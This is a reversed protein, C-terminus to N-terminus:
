PSHAPPCSTSARISVNYTAGVPQKSSSFYLDWVEASEHAFLGTLPYHAYDGQARYDWTRTDLTSPLIAELQARGVIGMEPMLLTIHDGPARAGHQQMWWLPRRLYVQASSGDPKTYSLHLWRWTAPTIEERDIDQVDGPLTHEANLALVAVESATAATLPLNSISATVGLPEFVPVQAEIAQPGAATLLVTGAAFCGLQVACRQNRRKPDFQIHDLNLSPDNAIAKIKGIFGAGSASPIGSGTFDMLVQTLTKRVVSAGAKAATAVGATAWSIAMDIILKGTEYGRNRENTLIGGVWDIIAQIENALFSSVKEHTLTKVIEIFDKVVTLNDWIEQASDYQKKALSQLDNEVGEIEIGLLEYKMRELDNFLLLRITDILFGRVELSGALWAGAVTRGLTIIGEALSILGTIQDLIGDIMGCVIGFGFEAMEPSLSLLGLSFLSMDEITFEPRNMWNQANKARWQLIEEVNFNLKDLKLLGEINEISLGNKFRLFFESCSGEMWTFWISIGADSSEFAEQAEHEQATGFNAASTLVFDVTIGFTKNIETAAAELQEAFSVGDIIVSSFAKVHQFSGRLGLSSTEYANCQGQIRLFGRALLLAELQEDNLTQGPRWNALWDAMTKVGKTEAKGAFALEKGNSAIEKECLSQLATELSSRLTEPLAASAPLKLKVRYHIQKDPQVQMGIFLYAPSQVISRLMAQGGYNFTFIGGSEIKNTFSEVVADFEAEGKMYVSQGYMRLEFTKFGEYQFLGQIINSLREAEADLFISNPDEFGLFDFREIFDATALLNPKIPLPSHEIGKPREVWVTANTLLILCFFSFAIRKFFTPIFIPRFM